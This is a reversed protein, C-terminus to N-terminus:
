ASAYASAPQSPAPNVSAPRHTPVREHDPARDQEQHDPDGVLEAPAAAIRRMLIAAPRAVPEFTPGSFSRTCACYPEYATLSTVDALSSIAQNHQVPLPEATIFLWSTYAVISSLFLLLFAHTRLRGTPRPTSTLASM